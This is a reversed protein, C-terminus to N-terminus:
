LVQDQALEKFTEERHHTACLLDCKDLEQKIVVWTKNSFMRAPHLDKGERHHFELAQVCKKYGCVMCEGGLYEVARLKM